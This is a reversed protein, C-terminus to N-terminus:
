FTFKMFIEYFGYSLHKKSYWGGPTLSILMKEWWCLQADLSSAYKACMCAPFTSILRLLCSGLVHFPWNMQPVSWTDFSFKWFVVLIFNLLKYSWNIPQSTPFKLSLGMNVAQLESLRARLLIFCSLLWDTQFNKSACGLIVTTNYDSCTLFPLTPFYIDELFSSFFIPPVM